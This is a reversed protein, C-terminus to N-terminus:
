GVVNEDDDGNDLELADEFLLRVTGETQFHNDCLMGEENCAECEPIEDCLQLHLVAADRFQEFKEQLDSLAKDELSQLIALEENTIGPSLTAACRDLVQVRFRAILQDFKM